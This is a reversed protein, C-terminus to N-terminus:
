RPRCVPLPRSTLGRVIGCREPYELGPAGPSGIIESASRSCAVAQATDIIAQLVRELDTPTSAIVRLVEATATQQELAERLSANSDNLEQFLRANEIAIVAQDAFTELLAIERDTFPRLEQRHVALVGVPEGRSLLPVVVQSRHGVLEFTPRSDPFDSMTAAEIDPVHVTRREIM